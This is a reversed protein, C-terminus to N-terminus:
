AQRQLLRERAPRNAEATCSDCLGTFESQARDLREIAEQIADAAQDSFTRVDTLITALTVRVIQLDEDLMQRRSATTSSM